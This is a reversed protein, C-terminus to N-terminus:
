TVRPAALLGKSAKQLDATAHWTGVRRLKTDRMSGADNNSFNVGSRFCQTCYQGDDRLNRPQNGNNPATRATPPAKSGGDTNDHHWTVDLMLKEENLTFVQLYVLRSTGRADTSVSASITSKSRKGRDGGLPQSFFPYLWVRMECRWRIISIKKRDSKGIEQVLATHSETM